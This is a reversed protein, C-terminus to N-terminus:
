IVTLKRADRPSCGVVTRFRRTFYNSDQFGVLYAAETVTMDSSRLLDIARSIRERILYDIPSVRFANRFERTLTRRSMSAVSALDDLTLSESYHQHIYGIVGSLRSLARMAPNDRESYARCVDTVIMMFQAVVAFRWGAPRTKQEVLMENIRDAVRALRDASLRVRSDYAGDDRANRGAILVSFGPLAEVDRAFMALDDLVFLINVLELASASHYGHVQGKHLVFVDGAGIPHEGGPSIHVGTGQLVVVMESFAHRHLGTNGHHRIHIVHLPLDDFFPNSKMVDIKTPM